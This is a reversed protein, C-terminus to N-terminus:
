RSQAVVSFGVKLDVFCENLRERELQFLEVFPSASYQQVSVSQGPVHNHYNATCTSGSPRACKTLTALPSAREVSSNATSVVGGTGSTYDM